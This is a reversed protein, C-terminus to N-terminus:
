PAEQMVEDLDVLLSAQYTPWWDGGWNYQMVAYAQRLQQYLTSKEEATLLGNEVLIKFASTSAAESDPKQIIHILEPKLSAVLETNWEQLIALIIWDKWTSDNEERFVRRIEPLATAGAASIMRAAGGAGPWNIDQLFQLFQPLYKQLRVPGLYELLIGAESSKHWDFLEEIESDTIDDFLSLSDLQDEISKSYDIHQMKESISM